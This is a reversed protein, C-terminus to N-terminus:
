AAQHEEVKSTSTQIMTHEFEVPRLFGLSSHHRRRNYVVEIWRAVECRAEAQTPWTHRHYFEHKLTSWFLEAMANDFCVATRGM